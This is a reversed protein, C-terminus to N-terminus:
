VGSGFCLWFLFLRGQGDERGARGGAPSRQVASLVPPQWDRPRRPVMGGSSSSSSSRNILM